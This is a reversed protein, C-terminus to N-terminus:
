ASFPLCIVLCIAILGDIPTGSIGERLSSAVFGSISTSKEYANRTGVPPLCAWPLCLKGARVAAALTRMSACVIMSIGIGFSSASQPTGAVAWIRRM